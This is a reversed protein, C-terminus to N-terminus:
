AMRVGEKRLKEVHAQRRQMWTATSLNDSRAKDGPDIQENASGKQGIPVIPRPAASPEPASQKSALKAMEMGMKVPSMKMLGEALDMNGGLEYMVRSPDDTELAAQLLMVYAAEEAPNGPTYLHQMNGVRDDFDSFAKRGSAAVDNCRRDFDNQQAILNARRNVEADDLQPASPDAAVAPTSKASKLQATLQAIRRDRWDKKAAPDAAEAPEASASGAALTDVVARAAPEAPPADAVAPTSDAPPVAPAAPAAAGDDNAIPPIVEGASSM